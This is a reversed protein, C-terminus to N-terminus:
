FMILCVLKLIIIIIFFKSSCVGFWRIDASSLGFGFSFMEFFFFFVLCKLSCFLNTSVQPRLDSSQTQIYPGLCRARKGIYQLV